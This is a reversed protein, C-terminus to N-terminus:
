DEEYLREQIIYDAVAQPVFDNVPLGRKVKARIETSSIDIKPIDMYIIDAGLRSLEIGKKKITALDYEDRVTCVLKSLKFIKEPNYWKEIQFLSDAGIIFYFETDEYMANLDSLTECTYSNGKKNVEILSIEFQPYKSIALEVMAVRKDAALVNKKMYSRGSPLFLVKDLNLSEYAKLALKIHGNHIPDFTGGMIGIKKVKDMYIGKGM